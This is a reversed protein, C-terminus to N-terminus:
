QFGRLLHVIVPTPHCPDALATVSFTLARSKAMAPTRVFQVFEFKAKSLRQSEAVQCSWTGAAWITPKSRHHRPLGPADGGVRILEPRRELGNCVGISSLLRSGDIAYVFVGAKLGLEQDHDGEAKSM